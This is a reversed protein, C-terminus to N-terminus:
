DRLDAHPLALSPITRVPDHSGRQNPVNKFQHM